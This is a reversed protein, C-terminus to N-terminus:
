GVYAFSEVKPDWRLLWWLGERGQSRRFLMGARSGWRGWVRVGRIRRGGCLVRLSRLVRRAGLALLAQLYQGEEFM